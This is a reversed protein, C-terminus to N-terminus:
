AASTLRSLYIFEISRDHVAPNISRAFMVNLAAILKLLVFKVIIIIYSYSCQRQHYKTHVSIIFNSGEGM